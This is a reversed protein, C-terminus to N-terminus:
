LNDIRQESTGDQQGSVISIVLTVFLSCIEIIKNGLLLNRRSLGGAAELINEVEDEICEGM